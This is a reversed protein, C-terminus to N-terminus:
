QISVDSVLKKFDEASIEVANTIKKLTDTADKASIIFVVKGNEGKRCDIYSGDDFSIKM